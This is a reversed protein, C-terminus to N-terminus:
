GLEVVKVFVFQGATAVRARNGALEAIQRLSGILRHHMSPDVEISYSGPTEMARHLADLDLDLRTAPTASALLADTAIVSGLTCPHTFSHLEPTFRM